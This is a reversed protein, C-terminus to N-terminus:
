VVTASLRLHAGNLEQLLWETQQAISDGSREISASEALSDVSRFFHSLTLITILVFTGIRTIPLAM